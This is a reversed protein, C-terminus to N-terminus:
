DSLASVHELHKYLCHKKDSNSAVKWYYSLQKVTNALVIRQHQLPYLVM